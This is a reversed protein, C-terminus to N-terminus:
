CDVMERPQIKPVLFRFTAAADSRVIGLSGACM